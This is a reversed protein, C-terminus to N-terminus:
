ALEHEQVACPRPFCCYLEQSLLVHLPLELPISVPEQPTKLGALDQLVGSLDLLALELEAIRAKSPERNARLQAPRVVLARERNEIESLKDVSGTRRSEAERDLRELEVIPLSKERDSVAPRERRREVGALDRQLEKLKKPGANAEKEYQKAEEDYRQASQLLDRANSYARQLREKTADDESYSAAIGSLRAEIETLTIAQVFVPVAAAAWIGVSFVRASVRSMIM